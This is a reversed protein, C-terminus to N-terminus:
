QQSFYKISVIKLLFSKNQSITEAARRQFNLTRFAGFNQVTKLASTVDHTSFEM